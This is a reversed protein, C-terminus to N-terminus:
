RHWFTIGEGGKWHSGKKEVGGHNKESALRLYTGVNM